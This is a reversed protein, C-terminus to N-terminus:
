YQSLFYNNMSYTTTYTVFISDISNFQLADICYSSYLIKEDSPVPVPLPVRVSLNKYCHNSYANITVPKKVQTFFSSAPHTAAAPGSCFQMAVYKMANRLKHTHTHRPTQKRPNSLKAYLRDTQYPMTHYLLASAHICINLYLSLLRLLLANANRGTRLATEAVAVFLM